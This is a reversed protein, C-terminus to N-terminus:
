YMSVEVQTGEKMPRSLERAADIVKVATELGAKGREMGDATGAGPIGPARGVLGRDVAFRDIDVTEGRM